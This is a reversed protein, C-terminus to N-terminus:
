SDAYLKRTFLREGGRLASGVVPHLVREPSFGCVTSDPLTFRAKNRPPLSSVCRVIQASSTRLQAVVSTALNLLNLKQQSVCRNLCRFAIKAAFLIESMRHIVKEVESGVYLLWRFM